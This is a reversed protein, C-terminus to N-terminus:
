ASGGLKRDYYALQARLDANQEQLGQVAAEATEMRKFHDMENWGRHWGSVGRSPTPFPCASEPQEDLRANMGDTRASVFADRQSIVERALSMCTYLQASDTEGMAVRWLAELREWAERQVCPLAYYPAYYSMSMDFDGWNYARVTVYARATFEVEALLSVDGVEAHASWVATAARETSSCWHPHLHEWPPMPPFDPM